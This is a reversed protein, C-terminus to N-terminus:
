MTNAHLWQLTVTVRLVALLTGANLRIRTAQRAAHPLQQHHQGGAGGVQLPESLLYRWGSEM